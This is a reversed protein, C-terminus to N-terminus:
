ARDEHKRRDGDIDEAAVQCPNWMAMLKGLRDISPRCCRPVCNKVVCPRPFFEIRFVERRIFSLLNAASQVIRDFGGAEMDFFGPTFGDLIAAAL